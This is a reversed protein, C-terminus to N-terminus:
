YPLGGDGAGGPSDLDQYSVRGRRARPDEGGPPPGAADVDVGGGGAGAGPRRTAGNGRDRGAPGGNMPVAGLPGMGGMGPAGPMAGMGMNAMMMQQMSMMMMMQQQMMREDFQGSGGGARADFAPMGLPLPPVGFTFDSMAPPLPLEDNVAALNTAAPQLRQPDLIYNNFVIFQCSRPVRCARVVGPPSVKDLKPKIEEPHKSAIHKVVFEPAKFLKSCHTCRYKSAEEQKIAPQCIKLSERRTLSSSQCRIDSTRSSV